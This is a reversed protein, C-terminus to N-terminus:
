VLQKELNLVAVHVRTSTKQKANFDEVREFIEDLYEKKLFVYFLVSDHEHLDGAFWNEEIPENERNKCGTVKQYSFTQVLAKKLIQKIENEFERIATIMLFRMESM